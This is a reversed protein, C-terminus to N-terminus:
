SGAGHITKLVSGSSDIIQLSVSSALNTSSVKGLVLSTGDYNMVDGSSGSSQLGPIRFSTISSNGLVISNAATASPMEAQFGIIINNNGCHPTPFSSGAARGVFVNYCGRCTCSGALSGLATNHKVINTAGGTTRCFARDGVVVNEVAQDTVSCMALDGIVVNQQANTSACMACHGIAINCCSVNTRLANSGIGINSNTSTICCLSNIGLAINDTGTSINKLADTGLGISCSNAVKGDTLGNIDTVGSATAFSLTGSGDTQLVQNASGDATPFTYASNITLGTAAITSSFTAAGAESMDLTLANVNSGGDNGQITIDKDQNPNKIQLNQSNNVFRTLETGANLIKVENGAADLFIDGAVDLTLDGSSVDIENGGNVITLNDTTLGNSANLVDSVTLQGPLTIHGGRVTLSGVSVNANFTANGAESMDFTLATIASGNDVGQIKFDKDNVESKLVIDQSVNNLSLISAGADKFYVNGGDADLSIDGSADITFDGTRTITDIAPTTLSLSTLSLTSGDGIINYIENFNDNILDGGDRLSTGTGDNASSGISISQKAM